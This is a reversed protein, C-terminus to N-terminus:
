VYANNIKELVKALTWEKQNIEYTFLGNARTKASIQENGETLIRYSRATSAGVVYTRWVCDFYKIIEDPFKEGTFGPRISSIVSPVGLIPNGDKNLPKTLTIREHALLILNKEAEKAITTYGACFQEILNMEVGFDQVAAIQVDYRDITSQTQSKGTKQNFALAKNLAGRRLYSMDDVVINDFADRFKSLGLDIAACTADFLIPADPLGSTGLKEALNRVIMKDAGSSPNAKKFGPMNLTVLGKGLNIYLTRPGATGAFWTKGSGSAGYVLMTTSKETNSEDVTTFGLSKLFELTINDIKSMM